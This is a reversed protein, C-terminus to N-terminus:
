MKESEVHVGYILLVYRLALQWIVYVGLILKILKCVKMPENKLLFYYIIIFFSFCSLPFFIEGKIRGRHQKILVSNYLFDKDLNIV